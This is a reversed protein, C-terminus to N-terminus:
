FFPFSDESENADAPFFIGRLLFQAHLHVQRRFQVMLGTQLDKPENRVCLLFRLSFIM